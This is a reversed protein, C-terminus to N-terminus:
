RGARGKMELLHVAKDYDRCLIEGLSAAGIVQLFKGLDAGYEEAMGQLNASQEGTIPESGGNGDDDEGVEILNFFMKTLTRRGYSVTSIVAQAGNKSGSKDVPLHIRKSEEHGGSHSLRCTVLVGGDVQGSDFSLAFGEAAILPRIARDIDELRAYRGHHSEGGKNIEPLKETLRALSAFFQTRRDDALVREQMALLREMKEVDITPEMVARAIVELVTLPQEGTKVIDNM